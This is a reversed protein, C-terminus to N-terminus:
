PVDKRLPPMPMLVDDYTKGYGPMEPTFYIAQLPVGNNNCVIQDAKQHELLFAHRM